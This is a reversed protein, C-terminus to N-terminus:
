IRSLKSDVPDGKKFFFFTENYVKKKTQFGLQLEM